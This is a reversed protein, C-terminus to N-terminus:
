KKKTTLDIGQNNHLTKMDKITKINFDVKDSILIVVGTRKKRMSYIQGDKENEAWKQQHPRNNYAAFLHIWEALRYRKIPSKLSNTYLIIISLYCSPGTM